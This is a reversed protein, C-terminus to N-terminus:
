SAGQIAALVEEIVQVPRKRMDDTHYRLVRWGLVAAATYKEIDRKIGTVSSHGGKKSYIGGEMEVAVRHEPFAFDFKWRRTPHFRHERVYAVDNPAVLKWTAAFTDSLDHKRAEPPM